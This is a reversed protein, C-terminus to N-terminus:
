ISMSHATLQNLTWHEYKFLILLLCSQEVFREFVTKLMYLCVVVEINNLKHMLLPTVGSSLVNMWADSMTKYIIKKRKKEFFGDVNYAYALEHTSNKKNM